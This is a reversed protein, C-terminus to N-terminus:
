RPGANARWCREAEDWAAVAQRDPVRALGSRADSSVAEPSVVVDLLARRRALARDLAARLDEAREVREGHTGFARAM